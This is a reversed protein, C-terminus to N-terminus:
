RREKWREDGAVLWGFEPKVAKAVRGDFVHGLDGADVLRTEAGARMAFRLSRQAEQRCSSQACVFLVRKGGRQTFIGAIGATWAAHGGEVLVLREFFAPEQRSIAVAHAAGLSYGALVVPGKSVYDGFRKKLAQLAARLEKATAEPDKWGFTTPPKKPDGLATGRPCLVFSCADSIGRWTGCQWEPRDAHGHLALLVPRPETAGLPVSVSAEGFGEVAIEVRWSAATLPPLRKPPAASASASASAGTSAADPGCRCGTVALAVVVACTM